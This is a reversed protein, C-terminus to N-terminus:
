NKSYGLSKDALYIIFTFILLIITATIFINGSFPAMVGLVFNISFHALIAILISRETHNYLWTFLISYSIVTFLYGITFASLLGQSGHLTSPMFFLPLHWAWWVIGLVLSAVIPSKKNQLKDLAYGRWGIEESFPGLLFIIISNGLFPIFGTLMLQLQSAEPLTETIFFYDLGVSILFVLPYIFIALFLWKLPILKFSFIRKFIESKDNRERLLFILGLISPGFGGLM